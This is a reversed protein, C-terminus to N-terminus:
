FSLLDLDQKGVEFADELEALQAQAARATGVILKQQRCRRLIKPSHGFFADALLLGLVLSSNLPGLLIVGIM